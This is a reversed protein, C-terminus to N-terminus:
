PRLGYGPHLSAFDPFDYVSIPQGRIASREMRAVAIRRALRSAPDGTGREHYIMQRGLARVTKKGLPQETM